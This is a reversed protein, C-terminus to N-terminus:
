KHKVVSYRVNISPNQINLQQLVMEALLLLRKKLFFLFILCKLVDSIGSVAKCAIESAGCYVPEIQLEHENYSVPGISLTSPNVGDNLTLTPHAFTLEFSDNVIQASPVLLRNAGADTIDGKKKKLLLL